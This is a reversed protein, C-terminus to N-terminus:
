NILNNNLVNSLNKYVLSYDHIEVIFIEIIVETYVVLIIKIIIFIVIMVVFVIIKRIICVVIIEVLIVIKSVHFIRVVKVWNYVRWRDKLREGQM